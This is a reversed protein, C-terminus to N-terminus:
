FNLITAFRIQDDLAKQNGIAHRLTSDVFLLLLDNETGMLLRLASAIRKVAKLECNPLRSVRENKRM